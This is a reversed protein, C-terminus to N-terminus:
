ALTVTFVGHGGVGHGGMVACGTVGNKQEKKDHGGLGYSSRRASSARQGCLTWARDCAMIHLESFSSRGVATAASSSHQASSSSSGGGACAHVRTNYVLVFLLTTSVPPNSSHAALLRQPTNAAAGGTERDFACGVHAGAALLAWGLGRIASVSSGKSADVGGPTVWASAHVPLRIAQGVDPGHRGAHLATARGPRPAQVPRRQISANHHRKIIHTRCVAQWQLSATGAFRRFECAGACM